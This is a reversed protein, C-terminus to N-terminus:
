AVSEAAEPLADLLCAFSVFRGHHSLSLAASIARSGRVLRPLRGDREIRLSGPPLGLAPAVSRVALERARASAEAATAADGSSMREAASLVRGRLRM